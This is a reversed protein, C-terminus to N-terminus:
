VENFNIYNLLGYRFMIVGYAGGLAAADADKMLEKASLKKLNSDSKYTQLGTWIKAKKSQKVFAKTVSKIWKTGAHYNGKYVMPIIADLYKSMTPIDQAYYKKMSSPEPMVAASVIIKKNINHIGNSAKKVFLNVAKVAGNYKYANGPYRVYDFHIGGIGKIKAFSKVEKVKTNIMDYNIKGNKVPNQWKGSKYFVQVWLHVKIGHAKADKIWSEVYGQGFRYLAMENLFIHKTGYKQLKDFNVSQMDTSLLWLGNNRAQKPKVKITYTKSVKKYISTAGRSVKVKYTGTKLKITVTAIGNKNTKKTYTKKNIKFKIKKGALVDGRVDVFKIKFKAAKKNRYIQSYYKTIKVPVGEYVKITKYGSTKKINDEGAYSYTIRYQARGLKLNLSAKGQSNTKKNYTKGAIKFTITRGELPLGGVTLQVTFTNRAGVYAVYNSAKIKSTSTSVVLIKTSGASDTYGDGNFSYKVTYTGPNVTVKLKAIGNGDTLVESTVKDLTFTVTKNAIGTGNEDTLKVSFDKGKIITTDDSKLSTKITENSKSSDELLNEGSSDTANDGLQIDEDSVAIIEQEDGLTSNDASSVATLTFFFILLFSLLLTRNKISIREGEKTFLFKYFFM